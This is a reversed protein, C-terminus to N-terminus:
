RVLNSVSLCISFVQSFISKTIYLLHLLISLALRDVDDSRHLIHPVRVAEHDLEGDVVPQLSSPRPQDVIPRSQLQIQAVFVRIRLLVHGDCGREVDGVVLIDVFDVKVLAFVPSEEELILLRLLKRVRRRNLSFNFELQPNSDGATQLRVLLFVIEVELDGIGFQAVSSVLRLQHLLAFGGIDGLFADADGVLKELLVVSFRRVAM